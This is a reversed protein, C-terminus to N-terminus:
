WIVEINGSSTDLNVHMKDSNGVTGTLNKATGTLNEAFPVSIRGSGTRASFAFASSRPLTLAISGSTAALTIDGSLDTVSCKIVGSSTRANVAGRLEGITIRGSAVRINVEGAAKGITVSGSSVEIEANGTLTGVTVAGSSATFSSSRASIGDVVIQGSSAEFATTQAQISSFFLRGSSSNFEADRFTFSDSSELNGSATKVSF